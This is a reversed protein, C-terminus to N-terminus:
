RSSSFIVARGVELMPTSTMARRFSVFRSNCKTLSYDQIIGCREFIDSTFIECIQPYRNQFFSSFAGSLFRDRSGGGGVVICFILVDRLNQVSIGNVYLIIGTATSPGRLAESDHSMRSLMWRNFARTM